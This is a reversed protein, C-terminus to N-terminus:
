VNSDIFQNIDIGLLLTSGILTSLGVISPSNIDLVRLIEGVKLMNSQTQVVQLTNGRTLAKDETPLIMKFNYVRSYNEYLISTNTNKSNENKISIFGILDKGKSSRLITQEFVVKLLPQFATM